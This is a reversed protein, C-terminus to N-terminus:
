RERGMREELRVVKIKLDMLCNQIKESMIGLDRKLVEVDEMMKDVQEEVAKMRSEMVACREPNPLMNYKKTLKMERVRNFAVVGSIILIAVGYILESTSM